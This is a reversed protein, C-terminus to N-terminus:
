KWSLNIVTGMRQMSVRRPTLGFDTISLSDYSLVVQAATGTPASAGSPYTCGTCTFTGRLQIVYAKAHQGQEPQRGFGLATNMLSRTTLVAEATHVNPDGLSQAQNKAIATLKRITTSSLPPEVSYETTLFPTHFVSKTRLLAGTTPTQSIVRISALLPRTAGFFPNIRMIWPLHMRGLERIAQDGTMGNFDPMRVRRSGGAPSGICCQHLTPTLTIATGLSAKTGSAPSQSGVIPTPPTTGIVIGKPVSVKFGARQLDAIAALM